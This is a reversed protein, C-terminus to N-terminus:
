RAADVLATFLRRDAADEEPHWQVGVGFRASPLELAEIVGDDSRASVLLPEAVRDVAQHHYAHVTLRDGVSGLLRQLRSGHQVEVDVTGFVAPAPQYKESGVVDPLHQHLTGGLTVNLLQAGRCIALFPMDRDIAAALLASEWADRDHRPDQTREHRDAGYLAPDVDAGGTLVLADIGDLVRGVAEPDPSHPPLLVPIGGAERVAILYVEPLLAARYNWVGQSAQELYSTLGILPPRTDSASSAM